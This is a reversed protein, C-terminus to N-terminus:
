VKFQQILEQLDNALKNVKSSSQSLIEASHVTSSAIQNIAIVNSNVKSAYQGQQDSDSAIETNMTLMGHVANKIKDLSEGAQRAQTLSENAKKSGFNMAEVAHKSGKQLRELMPEIENTSEQTRSALSRVEDAVVAFGRGQEGARAAEIAANLALLNTQEAIGNIVELAASIAHVDSELENIVTSANQMESALDQNSQISGIVTENGIVVQDNTTTALAAAEGTHNVVQQIKSVMTEVDTSIEDFKTSQTSVNSKTGSVVGTMEESSSILQSSCDKIQTMLSQLKMSFQNFADALEGFEDTSKVALRKTLDGDGDAVEQIAQVTQSLPVTVMQNIVYASGAGLVIAILTIIILVTFAMKINSLLEESSELMTKTEGSVLVDIELQMSELLPLLKENLLYIDMRRKNSENKEIMVKTLDFYKQLNEQIAPVEDEQEFNFLDSFKSMGNVHEISLELSNILNDKTAANPATLYTRITTLLKQINYRVEHQYNLWENRESSVDEDEETAIINSLSGLVANAIPNLNEGAFAMAPENSVQNIALELLEEKYSTYEQLQNQLTTIQAILEASSKVYDMESILNIKDIALTLNEIYNQKQKDSKTILFNALSASAQTLYNNYTHAELVLPNSQEIVASVTNDTKTLNLVSIIANIIFLAIVFAFGLWVKQKISLNMM